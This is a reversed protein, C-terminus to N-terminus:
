KREWDSKCACGHECPKGYPFARCMAPRDEYIGCLRTDEDWHKCTYLAPPQAQLRGELTDKALATWTSTDFDFREARELAEVLTLPQLMDGIQQGDRHEDPHALLEEKSCSYVFMACCKGTCDSM